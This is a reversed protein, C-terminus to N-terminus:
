RVSTCSYSRTFLAITASSSSVQGTGKPLGQEALILRLFKEGDEGNSSNPSVNAFAQVAAERYPQLMANWRDMYVNKHMESRMLIQCFAQCSPDLAMKRICQVIGALVDRLEVDCRMELASKPMSALYGDMVARYLREKDRFHAYITVKTIGCVEAIRKMTASEFGDKAFVKGAAHLIRQRSEARASEWRRAARSARTSPGPANM